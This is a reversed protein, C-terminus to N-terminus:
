KNLLGCKEALKKAEDVRDFTVKDRFDQAKPIKDQYPTYYSKCVGITEIRSRKRLIVKIDLM